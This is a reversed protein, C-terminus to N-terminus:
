PKCVPRASFESPWALSTISALRTKFSVASYLRMRFGAGCKWPVYGKDQSKWPRRTPTATTPHSIPPCDNHARFATERQSAPPTYLPPAQPNPATLPQRKPLGPHTSPSVSRHTPLLPITTHAQYEASQPPYA